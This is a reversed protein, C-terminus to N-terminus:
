KYGQYMRDLASTSEGVFRELTQALLSRNTKMLKSGNFPFCDKEIAKKKSYVRKGYIVVNSLIDFTIYQTHM